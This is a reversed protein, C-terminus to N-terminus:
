VSGGSIEINVGTLYSAKDSLLFAVVQAVERTSGYRRLPVMEIMQQAVVKPDDSFYQSRATAQKEVQTEWMRGPGIFAPSISNVRIAFPALDKAASKTLAIVAAKSAGYPAMNPPGSVGAMSASNVFSGGAGGNIMLRGATHLVNFVGIVNVDFVRRADEVPYEDIRAFQGQIGANNFVALPTGLDAEIRAFADAVAAADTVDFEATSISRGANGPLDPLSARLSGLSEHQSPHDCLVLSWGDAALERAAAAGIDGAAGTLVVLRNM